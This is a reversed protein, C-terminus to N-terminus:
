SLVKYMFSMVLDAWAKPDSPEDSIDDILKGFTYAQIFAAAARADFDSNFWGRQQCEVFMATFINTIKAQEKSLRKLLRPRQEALALLRARRFRFTRTEASQSYDLIRRFGALFAERNPASHLHAEIMEANAAVSQIFLDTLATEILDNFDDFHHYLSGSTVGSKALVTAITVDEVSNNDLLERAVEILRLRTPHDSQKKKSM